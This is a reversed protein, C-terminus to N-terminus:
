VRSPFGMGFEGPKCPKGPGIRRVNFVNIEESCCYMQPRNTIQLEKLLVHKSLFYAFEM